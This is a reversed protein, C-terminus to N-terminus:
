RCLGCMPHLHRLSVVGPCVPSGTDELASRICVTSMAASALLLVVAPSRLRASSAIDWVARQQQVAGADAMDALPQEPPHTKNGLALAALRATAEGQKVDCPKRRSSAPNWRRSPAVCSGGALGERTVYCASPL